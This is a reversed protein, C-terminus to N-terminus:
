QALTPRWPPVLGLPSCCLSGTPMDYRNHTIDSALFTNRLVLDYFTTTRTNNELEPKFDDLYRICCRTASM